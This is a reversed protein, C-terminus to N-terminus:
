QASAKLIKFAADLIKAILVTTGGAGANTSVRIAEITQDRNDIVTIGDFAGLAETAPNKMAFMARMEVDTLTTSYGNTFVVDYQAVNASTGIFLASFKTFTENSSVNIGKTGCVFPVGDANDSFAYIAPTTAANNTLRYTTSKPIRGTAIKFAVGMVTNVFAMMWNSYASLLTANDVINIYSNGDVEVQLGRLPNATGVDGIVLVSECQAQGSIVTTVGAGTTLTGIQM